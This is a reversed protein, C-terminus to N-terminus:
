QAARSVASGQESQWALVHDQPAALRQGQKVAHDAGMRGAGDEEGGGEGRRRPPAAGGGGVGVVEAMRLEDGCCCGLHAGTVQGPVVEDGEWATCCAPIGQSRRMSRARRGPPRPQRGRRVGVQVAVVGRRAQVQTGVGTLGGVDQEGRAGRHTCHTTTPACHFADQMAAANAVGELRPLDHQSVMMPQREDRSVIVVGETCRLRLLM